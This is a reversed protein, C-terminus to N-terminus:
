FKRRNSEFQGGQVVTVSPPLNKRPKLIRDADADYRKALESKTEILDNRIAKRDAGM